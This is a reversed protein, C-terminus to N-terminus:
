HIETVKSQQRTGEQHLQNSEMTLKSVAASLDDVKDELTIQAQKWKDVDLLM